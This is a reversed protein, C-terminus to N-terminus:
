GKGKSKKKIIDKGTLLFSRDVDVLFLDEIATRGLLMRFNMGERGVLTLKVMREHDGIKIKTEVFWRATKIGISSKVNGRKLIKATVLKHRKNNNLIVRFGIKGDDMVKINEVHLASTRAGTDVKARIGKINWEPFDVYEQWGIIEKQVKRRRVTM